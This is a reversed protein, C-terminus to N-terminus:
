GNTQLASPHLQLSVTSGLQADGPEAFCAAGLKEAQAGGAPLDRCLQPARVLGWTPM